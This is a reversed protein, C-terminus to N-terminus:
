WEHSRLMLMAVDEPSQERLNIRVDKSTNIENIFAITASSDMPVIGLQTFIRDIRGESEDGLNGDAEVEFLARKGANAYQDLTITASDAKWVSRRTSLLIFHDYSFVALSAIIQALDGRHFRTDHEERAVDGHWSGHKVSLVTDNDILKIKIDVLSDPDPVFGEGTKILITRHICKELNYATDIKSKLSAAELESLGLRKEVERM